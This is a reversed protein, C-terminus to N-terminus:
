WEGPITGDWSPPDLVLLPTHQLVVVNATNPTQNKSASSYFAAVVVFAAASLLWLIKQRRASVRSIM